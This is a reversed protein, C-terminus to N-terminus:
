GEKRSSRLRPKIGTDRISAPLKMFGIWLFYLIVGNVPFQIANKIVRTWFLAPFAENEPPVMAGTLCLFFTNMGVNCILAIIFTCILCRIIHPVKRYLILGYILGGIAAVLTYGPFFPGSPFLLAGIVDAIAATLTSYVPGLMIGCLAIPIFGFSIKLYDGVRIGAIRSLAVEAAIMMAMVCLAKVSVFSTNQKASKQEQM